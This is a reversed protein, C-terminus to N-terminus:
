FESSETDPVKNMKKIKHIFKFGSKIMKMGKFLKLSVNMIKLVSIFPILALMLLDLWHKRVFIRWNRIKNYKLCVDICLLIFIAWPSAEWYKEITEPLPIIPNDLGLLKWDFAFFGVLFFALLVLVAYDIIKSINKGLRSESVYPM